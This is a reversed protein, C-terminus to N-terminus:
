KNRYADIIKKIKLDHGRRIIDNRTKANNPVIRFIWILISLIKNVISWDKNTPAIRLFIELLVILVSLLWEWNNKLWNNGPQMPHLDDMSLSDSRVQTTLKELTDLNQQTKNSVVINQQTIIQDLKKEVGAFVIKATFLAMVLFFFLRKM